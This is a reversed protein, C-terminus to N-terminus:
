LPPITGRRLNTNAQLRSVKMEWVREDAHGIGKIRRKTFKKYYGGFDGRVNRNLGVYVITRVGCNLARLITKRVFGDDHCPRSFMVVSDKEFQYETSDGQVVPFESEDRPELDLATVCLGAKALAKGVHGVGAGVEYIHKKGHHEKMWRVFQATPYFFVRHDKSSFENGDADDDLKQRIGIWVRFSVPGCAMEESNHELIVDRKDCQGLLWEWEDFSENEEDAKEQEADLRAELGEAGDYEFAEGNAYVFRIHSCSPQSVLGEEEGIILTECLPCVVDQDEEIVIIKPKPM